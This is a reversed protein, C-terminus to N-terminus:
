GSRSLVAAILSIITAWALFLYAWLLPVGLMLEMPDFQPLLPPLLLLAGFAAVMVLRAGLREDDGPTAVEIV